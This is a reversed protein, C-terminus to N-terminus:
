FVRIAVGSSVGYPKLQGYTFGPWLQYEVDIVRIFVPTKGLKWDLGGGPALAVYSGKAYGYPFDFEGRGVLFKVYPRVRHPLFSYKPGVMYTREHIGLDSHLRLDRAEAEVGIRRYVHADLFVAGGGLLRKGYDSEYASATVGVTIYSGPGVAAPLAQGM